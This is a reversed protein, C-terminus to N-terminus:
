VTSTATRRGPGARCTPRIRPVNRLRQLRNKRAADQAYALNVTAGLIRAGRYDREGKSGSYGSSYNGTWFAPLQRPSNSQRPSLSRLGPTGEPHLMQLVWWLKVCRMGPVAFAEM